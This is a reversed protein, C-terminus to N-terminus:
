ETARHLELFEEGPMWRKHELSLVEGAEQILIPNHVSTIVQGGSTVHEQLRRSLWFVSRPSLSGDPEDMLLVTQEPMTGLISRVVEGHSVFRSAVQTGIDLDDRFRGQARPNDKEFDIYAGKLMPDINEVRINRGGRDEKRAKILGMLEQLMTSKGCGQDGVLLTYPRIEVREGKTFVGRVDTNFTVSAIM